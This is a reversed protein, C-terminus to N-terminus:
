KKLSLVFTNIVKHAKELRELMEKLSDDVVDEWNPYAEALEELSITKM